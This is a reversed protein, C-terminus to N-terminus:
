DLAPCEVSTVGVQLSLACLGKLDTRNDQSPTRHNRYCCWQGGDCPTGAGWCPDRSQAAECRFGVDTPFVVDLDKSPDSASSVCAVNANACSPEQCLDGSVSLGFLEEHCWGQQACAQACESVSAFDPCEDGECALGYAPRCRVGDFVVGLDARSGDGSDAWADQIRCSAGAGDALCLWESARGTVPDTPEDAVDSDTSADGDDEAGVDRIPAGDSGDVDDTADDRWGSVDSADPDVRADTRDYRMSSDDACSTSLFLWMAHELKVIM